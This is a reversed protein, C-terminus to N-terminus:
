WRAMPKACFAGALREHSEHGLLEHLIRTVFVLHHVQLAGVQVPQAARQWCSINQEQKNRNPPPAPHSRRRGRRWRM